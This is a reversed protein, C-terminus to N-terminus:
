RAVGGHHSCTGSRHETFSWTGDQCQASYGVPPSESNTASPRHVEHHDTNVYCDHRKLDAEDPRAPCAAHASAYSFLLLLGAVTTAFLRHM